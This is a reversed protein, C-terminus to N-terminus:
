YNFTFSGFSEKENCLHLNPKPKPSPEAKAIILQVIINIFKGWLSLFVLMQNMNQNAPTLKRRRGCNLSMCIFNVPYELNGIPSHTPTTM